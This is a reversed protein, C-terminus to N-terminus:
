MLFVISYYRSVVLYMIIYGIYIGDQWKNNMYSSQEQYLRAEQELKFNILYLCSCFVFYPSQNGLVFCLNLCSSYLVISVIIWLFTIIKVSLIKDVRVRFM